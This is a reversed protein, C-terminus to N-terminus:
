SSGTDAPDSTDDGNAKAALLTALDSLRRNLETLSATRASFHWVVSSVVAVVFAIVALMGLVPLWLLVVRASAGADLGPFAFLIAAWIAAFVVVVTTAWAGFVIYRIRAAKRMEAAVISRFQQGGIKRLAEESIGNAAALEDVLDREENM